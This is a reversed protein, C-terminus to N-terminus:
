GIVVILPKLKAVKKSIGLNHVVDVVDEINKYAHPAEQSLGKYSRASVVIGKKKMAEKVEEGRMEKMASHRSKARGAGHVTSGWTLEEAKKTGVLVYSATGMSGPILVPQGVKRYAFPIEKRGAGFSRTAGKRHVCVTQKKGKGDIDFEEFKAINHCVDYVVDIKVKPFMHTMEERVWHSIIQKNVFAFNAACAMASYYDKGLKSNIPASVLERDPFKSTGYENEMAKIYDSAVQHGLGRSGCHIMFTIQGKELGFAKATKEDYIEEVYHVDLFHNGAGLSGLQGIGRSIAKESVKSVDAGKLCGEEEMHLYDEKVGYGKSVIYPVGKTMIQKLEDKTVKFQSGRGVGSPIKRSLQSAIEEEKGQIDKRTLNTRLLRVSCNSVVFGNAVFNHNENNMSFDYVFDNYDIEEKSEVEDWIFGNKGYCSKEIFKNFSIFCYAIRSGTRGYNSYYIAKDIFYKNVYKESLDNIIQNKTVGEKKMDRAKQITADRFELIKEKQKLWLIAANALNRKKINYEYNINSFLKILNKSSPYVMLRIRTSKGKGSQETRYKLLINRIGFEELLASIQNVFGIGHLSNKKNLSFVPGYFNFKNNTMTKPSSMEAGFLSALFLRKYWKVSKMIWRPIFYDQETKNGKPTGLLYLLIALSSSNSRLSNEKRLFEYEKYETKIKHKRKRSFFYSNFGIKYIDKKILKLDKEDGYFGIQCNKDRITISGDGIIFGMIKLLYPIKPNDSYLPLLRLEKLKNKIQLKSTFSRNLKDIDGESVLLIRKPKEYEVGEFPYLLVNEGEKIDEIKKMGDKTFIPHEATVKIIQGSKTKIKLIKESPKKMFFSINSNDLESNKKNLISLSEEDYNKEFEKIKRTYGLSSLIKSDKSLCNIDYGVGGPSIVGKKMDFGAVGGIPFGYGQHADPVAISAKLIGPLMAVNEVQQLTRDKKIQEILTDSAYVIGPVNMKEKKPIEYVFESKKKIETM